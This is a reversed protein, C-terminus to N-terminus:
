VAWLLVTGGAMRAAMMVGMLVVTQVAWLVALSWASCAAWQEASLADMSAVTQQVMRVARSDVTWTGWRDVLMVAKPVAKLAATAAAKL